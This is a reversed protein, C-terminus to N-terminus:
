YYVNLQKCADEFTMGEYSTKEIKVDIDNCVLYTTDNVIVEFLDKEYVTVINDPYINFKNQTEVSTSIVKYEQKEYKEEYIIGYFTKKIEKNPKKELFVYPEKALIKGNRIVGLVMTINQLDGAKALLRKKQNLMNPEVWVDEEVFTTTANCIVLKGINDYGIEASEDNDLKYDVIAIDGEQIGNVGRGVQLVEAKKRFVSSRYDKDKRWDNQYIKIIKGDNTKVKSVVLADEYEDNRFRLLVKHPMVKIKTFDIYKNM